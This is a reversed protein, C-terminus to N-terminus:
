QARRTGIGIPRSSKASRSRVAAPPYQFGELNNERYDPYDGIPFPPTVGPTTTSRGAVAATSRLRILYQMTADDHSEGGRAGDPMIFKVRISTARTSQTEQTRANKGQGADKAFAEYSPAIVGDATLAGM